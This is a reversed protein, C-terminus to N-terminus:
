EGASEAEGVFRVTIERPAAGGLERGLTVLDKLMGTLEKARRVDCDPGSLAERLWGEVLLALAWSDAGLRASESAGASMRGGPRIARGSSAPLSPTM